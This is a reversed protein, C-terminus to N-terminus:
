RPSAPPLSRWVARWSPRVRRELYHIVEQRWELVALDRGGLVAAQTHQTEQGPDQADGVEDDEDPAGDHHEAAPRVPGGGVQSALVVALFKGHVEGETDQHSGPYSYRGRM